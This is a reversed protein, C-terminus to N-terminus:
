EGDSGKAVIMSAVQDVFAVKIGQETLPKWNEAFATYEEDSIARSFAVVITDGPRAVAATVAGGEGVDDGGERDM